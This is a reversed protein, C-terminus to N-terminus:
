HSAGCCCCVLEFLDIDEGCSWSVSMVHSLSEEYHDLSEYIYGLKSFSKLNPCTYIWLSKLSSPLALEPFSTLKPCGIIELYDLSNLNRFGEGMLRKLNPFNYLSLRILSPPFTMEMEQQPFSEAEPLGWIELSTLSTLNHLGWELLAKYMKVEGDIKLSTLNTPFGEEPFSLMSHCGRLTLSELSNFSVSIEELSKNNHFREAISELDPLSDLSLTHLMQPLHGSSSLMTLQSCDFVYLHQLSEPLLGRSSLCKLSPCEKVELYELLSTSTNNNNEEDVVFTCSEERDDWLYKLKECSKIELRKLSSPLQGRVIFKLSDCVEM